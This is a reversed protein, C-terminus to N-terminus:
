ADEGIFTRYRAAAERLRASPAPPNLLAEVFRRSDRESLTLVEHQRITAESKERVARRIYDTMTSGDLDAARQYLDKEHQPLRLDIRSLAYKLQRRRRSAPPTSM